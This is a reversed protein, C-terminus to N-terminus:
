TIAGQTDSDNGEFIDEILYLVENFAIHIVSSPSVICPKGEVPCAGDLDSLSLPGCCIAYLLASVLMASGITEKDM